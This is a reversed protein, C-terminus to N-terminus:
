NFGVFLELLNSFLPFFFDGEDEDSNCVMM